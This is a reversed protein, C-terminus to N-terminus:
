KDNKLDYFLIPWEKVKTNKNFWYSMFREALFAYIRIKGYGKLDFGFLNECRELWEFITNYYKDLIKKSRCIFMNAPNFSTENIIFKSFENKDENNLLDIAKDIVGCGHFMDFQFKLNRKKKFIAKPNQLIALKGYKIIKVWKINGINMKNGLIVEYNNWEDPIEDLISEDLDYSGTLKVNKKQWFRRYTCFGIWNDDPLSDLKNKWLWYHFSYEGYYSNKQSINIGNNDRLWEKSFKNNGLGVPIYNLKKVHDLYDENLCLCFFQGNKM